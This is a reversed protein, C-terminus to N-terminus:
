CNNELIVIKCHHIYFYINDPCVNCIVVKSCKFGNTFYVKNNLVYFLSEEDGIQIWNETTDSTSNDEFVECESMNNNWIISIKHDDYCKAHYKATKIESIVNSEDTCSM